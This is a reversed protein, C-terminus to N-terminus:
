ASADSKMSALAADYLPKLSDRNLLHVSSLGDRTDSPATQLDDYMGFIFEHDNKATFMEPLRRKGWSMTSLLAPDMVTESGELEINLVPRAIVLEPSGEPTRRFLFDEMVPNELLLISASTIRDRGTAGFGTCIGREMGTEIRRFALFRQGEDLKTYLNKWFALLERGEQTHNDLLEPHLDSAVDFDFTTNADLAELAVIHEDLSLNLEAKKLETRRQREAQDM